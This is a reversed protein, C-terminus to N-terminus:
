IGSWLLTWSIGLLSALLGLALMASRKVTWPNGRGFSMLLSALTWAVTSLLALWFAVVFVFLLHGLTWPTPRILLALVVFCLSYPVSVWWWTETKSRTVEYLEKMKRANGLM